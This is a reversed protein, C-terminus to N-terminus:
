DFFEDSQSTQNSTAQEYEADCNYYMREAPIGFSDSEYIGLRPNAYVRKMFEGFIPLARVSGEGGRTFHVSQDEGGVWTGTVLKPVVGMFWADRNEQSTGTKGGMEGKFGYQWRLRGATGANVVNQLMGLMTYATQESVADSSTPIFTSIVNGQRDEIRTVFIPETNVGHNVFTGFAGVMEFLSVESTGLCLAYVPDIFSRIGMNHLFDAVAEPQKAQKMIWASYNNRSNALGWKLPKPEGTYEVVAAEKPSWPEGTYTEITVPLNPVMTCPTYGLHDMAFTYIFPKITSGPQRKSQKAMDYKFYRYSPGGVYAKVYGTQPDMAMFSARMIRKHHLISDHPTMVTDRMGRYTFIRMKVPTNFVAKIKEDSAGDAKLLRYRDTYRMAKALIRDRQEKTTNQFLVKTARYQADMDVQVKRMQTQVAEEAYVQMVSNVTTYIKLGDRYINYESGDPKHNKHCWGYLPNTEWRHLEYKYDYENSYSRRVPKKAKMVSCIMERFYTAIGDNHSIPHFDLVIPLAAISDYQHRTLYGSDQMRKMVVNRRALAKDPNIVPSYSTTAKLVGVLVASEQINLESPAKSFFTYAASKIGTANSGYNVTNLYMSLIEDKTYARELKVATIWEKLKSMVLKTNRALRSRYLTTDRPYLNKALQQSITSGGGQSRNGMALSKVGVRALSIFDIGSHAYYRADETSVLAAVLSPSLEDYSVYSRNEKYFLSGLLKGDESYIETAVDSKPNELEEFSPLKGFLGIGTLFLVFVVAAFPIFVIGWIWKVAQPHQDAKVVRAVFRRFSSDKPASKRKM